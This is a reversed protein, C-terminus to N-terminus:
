HFFDEFQERTVLKSSSDSLARVAYLKDWYDGIGNELVIAQNEARGAYQLEIARNESNVALQWGAISDVFSLM